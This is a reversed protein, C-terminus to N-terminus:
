SSVKQENRVSSFMLFIYGKECLMKIEHWLLSFIKLTLKLTESSNLSM